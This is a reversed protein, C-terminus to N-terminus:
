KGPRIEFKGDLVSIIVLTGELWGFVAGFGVHQILQFQALDDVVLGGAGLAVGDLAQSQASEQVSLVGHQTLALSDFQQSQFLDHVTISNHQALVVVGSTQLQRLPSVSLASNQSLAINEASMAQSSSQIVLSIAAAVVWTIVWDASRVGTAARIIQCTTTQNVTPMSSLRFESTAEPFNAINSPITLTDCELQDGTVPDPAGTFGFLMYGITPWVPSVLNIYSRGAAPTFPIESSTDFSTDDDTYVFSYGTVDYLGIAGASPMTAILDGSAGPYTTITCPIGNYTLAAGGQSVSASTIGIIIGAEGRAVTAPVSTISAGAAVYEMAGITVGGEGANELLVNKTRYGDRVWVHLDIPRRPSANAAIQSKTADDYGNINLMDAVVSAVTGVGLGQTLDWNAASRTIDFFEPDEEIDNGGYGVTVGATKTASTVGHYKDDIQYWCQSDMLTIQDDAPVAADFNFGLSGVVPTKNYIITNTLNLTGTVSGGSETRFISGYAADYNGVLTCNFFNYIDAMASGLANGLVCSKEDLVLGHSVTLPSSPSLICLDGDDTYSDTWVLEMVPRTIESFIANFPKPNNKEHIV